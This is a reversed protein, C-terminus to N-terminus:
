VEEYLRRLFEVSGALHPETTSEMLGQIHPREYKMYRLIPEFKLFGQGVPVMEIRGDKVIFDKLHLVAIRDGLLELAEAVVEDQRTYNDPSMLNACDLIIQLNNSPIADLLRRALSATHLPHNLGAEIGVTVGFREAEAVMERVAPIVRQFAEETFNDTTYGHGVSGTETGVLSAGFDRALRINTKFDALAQAETQPDPAVINVYCGLVAIQIGARRFANGYYAATGPSLASLSPASEPFSKKIAFQIHSFEYQQLKQILDTLPIQGFDHARVGLHLPVTM